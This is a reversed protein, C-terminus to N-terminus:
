NGSQNSPNTGYAGSGGVIDHLNERDPYHLDDLVVLGLSTFQPRESEGRRFYLESM